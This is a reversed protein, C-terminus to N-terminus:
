LDWQQNEDRCRHKEQAQPASVLPEGEQRHKHQEKEIKKPEPYADIRIEHGTRDRDPIGRRRGLTLLEHQDSGRHDERDDDPVRSPGVPHKAALGAGVPIVSAWPVSLSVPWGGKSFARM